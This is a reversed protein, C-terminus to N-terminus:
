LSSVDSVVVRYPNMYNFLIHGEAAGVAFSFFRQQPPTEHQRKSFRRNQFLLKLAGNEKQYSHGQKPM